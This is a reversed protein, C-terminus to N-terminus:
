AVRRGLSEDTLLLERHRGVRFTGDRVHDALSKPKRGSGPRAGGRGTGSM